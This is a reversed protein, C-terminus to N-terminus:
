KERPRSGGFGTYLAVGRASTAPSFRGGRRSSGPRPRGAGQPANPDSAAGRARSTATKFGHGRSGRPTGVGLRYVAGGDGRREAAPWAAAAPTRLTGRVVVLRRREGNVVAVAPHEDVAVRPAGLVLYDV